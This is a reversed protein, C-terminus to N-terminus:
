GEQGTKEDFVKRGKPTLDWCMSGLELGLEAAFPTSAVDARTVKRWTVLGHRELREAFEDRDVPILDADCFANWYKRLDDRARWEDETCREPM